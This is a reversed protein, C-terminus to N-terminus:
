VSCCVKHVEPDKKFIGHKEDMSDFKVNHDDLFTVSVTLRFLLNCGIVFKLSQDM